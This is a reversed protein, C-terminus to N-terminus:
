KKNKKVEGRVAPGGGPPYCVKIYTGSNPKITRVRGGKNVCATFKKPM